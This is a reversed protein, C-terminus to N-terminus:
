IKTPSPYLSNIKWYLVVLRIFWVYDESDRTVLPKKPIPDYPFFFFSFPPLDLSREESLFINPTM